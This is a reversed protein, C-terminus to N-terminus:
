QGAARVRFSKDRLEGAAAPRNGLVQEGFHQLALRGLDLVQKQTGRQEVADVALQRIQQSTM